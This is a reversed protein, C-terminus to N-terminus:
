GRSAVDRRGAPRPRECPEVAKSSERVPATSPLDPLDSDTPLILRRKCGM